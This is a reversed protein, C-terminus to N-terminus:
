RHFGMYHVHKVSCMEEPMNRQLASGVSPGPSPRPVSLSDSLAVMATRM